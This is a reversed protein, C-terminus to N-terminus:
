ERECVCIYIKCHENHMYTLHLLNFYVSTSTTATISTTIICGRYLFHFIHKSNQTLSHSLSNEMNDNFHAITHKIFSMLPLPLPLLFLLPLLVLPLLARLFQASQKLSIDDVKEMSYNRKKM